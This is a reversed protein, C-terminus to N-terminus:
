AALRILKIRVWLRLTRALLTPDMFRLFGKLVGLSKNELYRSDAMNMKSFKTLYDVALELYILECSLKHLNSKRNSVLNAQPRTLREYDGKRFFTLNYPIKSIGRSHLKLRLFFDKDEAFNMGARFAGVEALLSRKFIPANQSWLFESLITDYEDYNIDRQEPDSNSLIYSVEHKYFGRCLPVVLDVDDCFEAVCRETKLPHYLDDSDIFQVYEGKCYSIGHNRASSVGKNSQNLYLVDFDSDDDHIRVFEQIISESNDTSGDNVIILQIPRYTQNYVSTLTDIILDERNYVPVVVSM